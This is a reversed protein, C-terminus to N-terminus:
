RERHSHPQEVYPNPSVAVWALQVLAVFVPVMAMAVVGNVLTRGLAPRRRGVFEIITIVVGISACKLGIAGWLGAQRIVFDAFTNLERGGMHAFDNLIRHTLMIDLAGLLVFWCYHNPFLVARSPKTPPADSM